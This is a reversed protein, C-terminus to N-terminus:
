QREYPDNPYLESMIDDISKQHHYVAVQETEQPTGWWGVPESWLIQSKLGSKPEPPIQTSM